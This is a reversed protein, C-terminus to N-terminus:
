SGIFLNVCMVFLMLVFMLNNFEYLFVFVEELDFRVYRM